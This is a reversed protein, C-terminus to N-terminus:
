VLDIIKEYNQFFGTLKVSSDEAEPFFTFALDLWTQELDVLSWDINFHNLTRKFDVPVDPLFNAKLGLGWTLLFFGSFIHLEAKTSILSRMIDVVDGIFEFRFSKSKGITCTKYDCPLDLFQETMIEKFAPLMVQNYFLAHEESEIRYNPAENQQM